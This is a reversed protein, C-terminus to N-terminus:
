VFMQSLSDLVIQWCSPRWPSLWSSFDKSGPAHNGLCVGRQMDRPLDCVEGLDNDGSLNPTCAVNFCGCSFLVLLCALVKRPLV